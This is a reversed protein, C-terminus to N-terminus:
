FRVRVGIGWTDQDRDLANNADDFDTVGFKAALEVSESPFWSAFFEYPTGDEFPDQLETDVALGFALTRSPFLSLRLDVLEPGGVDVTTIGADVGYSWSAVDGIHSLTLKTETATFASTFSRSDEEVRSVRLDLATREGVYKGVGVTLVDTDVKFRGLSTRSEVDGTSLEALGYWGSAPWVYRLRAAFLESETRTVSTTAPVLPDGTSLLTNVDGDSQAYALSLSSARSLFPARSLPGTTTNVGDFFWAGSLAIEDTDSDSGLFLNPLPLSPIPGELSSAFNATDYTAGVEFEFPEASVAFSLLAVLGTCARRTNKLLM